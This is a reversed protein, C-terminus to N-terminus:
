EDDDSSFFRRNNPYTEPLNYIEKHIKHMKELIAREEPTFVPQDNGIPTRILLFLANSLNEYIQRQTDPSM